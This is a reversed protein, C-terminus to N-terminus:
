GNEQIWDPNDDMAQVAEQRQQEALHNLEEELRHLSRIKNITLFKENFTEQDWNLLEDLYSM